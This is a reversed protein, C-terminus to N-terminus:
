QMRPLGYDDILMRVVWGEAGLEFVYEEARLDGGEGLKASIRSHSLTQGIL